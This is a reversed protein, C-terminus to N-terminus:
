GLLRDPRNKSSPTFEALEFINLTLKDKSVNVDRVICQLTEAQDTPPLASFSSRFNRLAHKVIEGNFDEVVDTTIKQKLLYLEEQLKKQDVERKEIEQELREVSITGKGLADVFRSIEKEIQQIRREVDKSEALIPLSRKQLDKNTEEICMNLYVENQSLKHLDDIIAQEIKDANLSKISCIKNNFHMTKTCRYYPIQYPTGDSRRKRTYHPTMISGCDNCRLMGKLLYPRKMKSDGHSITRRTSQVKNFVTEDIISEHIGEYVSEKFKIKGCYVPNRLINDVSPKGWRKGARTFWERRNLKDRLEALSPSLAFERFMFQVRATEEPIIVLKKDERGYGYPTYGGNWLGKEARQQLKDRTRDATMEREFQAFSLLINRMLRGTATASDFSQTTSIFNVGYQDFLDMLEFFDKMSRTLRDIKYAVVCDIKGTRIDRFM